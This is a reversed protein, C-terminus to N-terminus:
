YFESLKELAPLYPDATTVAEEATAASRASVKKRADRLKKVKDLRKEGEDIRITLFKLVEESTRLCRELEHIVASTGQIAMVVYIGERFKSMTYALPRKGMRSVSKVTGLALTVTTELHSVLKDLDREAMDPRLIFTLEYAPNM